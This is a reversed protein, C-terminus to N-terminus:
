ATDVTGQCTCGKATSLEGTDSRVFLASQEGPGEAFFRDMPDLGKTHADNNSALVQAHYECTCPIATSTEHRTHGEPQDSKSGTQPM